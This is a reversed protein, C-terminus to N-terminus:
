FYWSNHTLMAFYFVQFLKKENEDIDGATCIMITKTVPTWDYAVNEPDSSTCEMVVGTDGLTNQFQSDCRYTVRM